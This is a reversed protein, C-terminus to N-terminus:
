VLACIVYAGGAVRDRRDPELIIRDGDVRRSALQPASNPLPIGKPRNSEIEQKNKAVCCRLDYEGLPPMTPTSFRGHSPGRLCSFEQAFLFYILRTSSRDSGNLSPGALDLGLFVHTKLQIKHTDTVTRDSVFALRRCFIVMVLCPSRVQNFPLEAKLV